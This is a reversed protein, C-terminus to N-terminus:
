DSSLEDLPENLKELGELVFRGDKLIFIEEKKDTIACLSGLEDYPITIDTHCNFYAAQPDTKRKASFSNEKAVIRKGNPNFTDVDEEHSYCTDGVAFHPGTKEAILIPMISDLGYTKTAKYAVTNTGIAFEGLPLTDHNFLLYTDIFKKCEEEDEYNGCTINDIIGDKFELTLDVFQIGNLFVEKVHLIGNTGELRPSTFVEGVPINVDAVCNEFKTEKDPNTIDVLQVKIDTRNGNRGLVHVYDAKDLTDIIIQQMDRYLEYNLTNIKITERFIDEFREGIAPTPFAIITFSREEGKVYRNLIEGARGSYQTFLKKAQADASTKENKKVPTFPKEGFSEICAPGGYVAAVDKIKDLCDRYSELKREMFAHDFYFVKDYEHDSDFQRNISTSEIGRKIVSRSLMFSPSSYHIIADLGMDKFNQVAKRVVREFGLFYRIEVTKKISIDKGTAIFGLRYGETFTYAMRDIDDDSLTAMFTAMSLETDSIYEGYDYLYDSDGLDAEMVIAKPLSETNAFSDGLSDALMLDLYDFAFSKFTEKVSEFNPAKGSESKAEVFMYYIELFLEERILVQELNQSYAYIICSRLEAYIASLLQGFEKGLKRVAFSPNLYSNEYYRPRLEIYLDKNAQIRRNVSTKFFSGEMASLLIGDVSCLFLAAQNFYPYYADDTECKDCISGIREMALEHREMLYELDENDFLRKYSYSM